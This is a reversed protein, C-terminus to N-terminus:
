PQAPRKDHRGLLRKFIVLPLLLNALISFMWIVLAAIIWTSVGTISLGDTFVDTIILGIITTILAIGGMLYPAGTVTIKIILPGLVTTAASFVLVAVVFSSLNITFDDLLMSAALLGVANALISLILRALIRLM